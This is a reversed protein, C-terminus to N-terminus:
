HGDEDEDEDEDEDAQVLVTELEQELRVEMELSAAISRELHAKYAEIDNFGAAAMRATRVAIEERVERNQQVRKALDENAKRMAETEKEMQEVQQRLDEEEATVFEGIDALAQLLKQERAARRRRENRNDEEEEEVEEEEEEDVNGNAGDGAENAMTLFAQEVNQASKASSELFPIPLQDAFEKAVDYEVVREDTLDSKNGVLLKNVGKLARRDIDQLIGTVRDFTNSIHSESYSDDAYRLLLSSKGVDSDGILVLKFLYDYDAM